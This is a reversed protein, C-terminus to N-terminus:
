LLNQFIKVFKSLEFVQCISFNFSSLKVVTPEKQCNKEEEVKSLKSLKEFVKSIHQCSRCDMPLKAIQQCSICDTPLKQLRNAVILLKQCNQYNSLFKVLKLMEIPASKMINM